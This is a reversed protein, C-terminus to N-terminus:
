SAVTISGAKVEILVLEGPIADEIRTDAATEAATAQAQTGPYKINPKTAYATQPSLVIPVAM